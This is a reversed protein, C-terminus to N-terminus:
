KNITRKLEFGNTHIFLRFKGTIKRQFELIWMLIQQRLTSSYTYSNYHVFINFDGENFENYKCVPTITKMVWKNDQWVSGQILNIELFEEIEKKM